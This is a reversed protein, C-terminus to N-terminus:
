PKDPYRFEEPHQYRDLIAEGDYNGTEGDDPFYEDYDDHDPDNWLPYNEDFKTADFVSRDFDTKEVLIDKESNWGLELVQYTVSEPSFLAQLQRAVEIAIKTLDSDAAVSPHHTALQVHSIIAMATLLPLEIVSPPASELQALEAAFQKFDPKTM